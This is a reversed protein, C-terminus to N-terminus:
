LAGEDVIALMADNHNCSRGEEHASEASYAIFLKGDMVRGYPYSLAARRGSKTEGGEDLLFLRRISSEGPAGIGLLLRSRDGPAGPLPTNFILYPRGDSLRGCFPKSTAMPLNTEECVGFSRGCDTSEATVAHFVGERRLSENRMIMRVRNGAVWAGAETFVEGRTNLCVVDWHLLDEGRSRAAAALWNESCGTLLWCGDGTKEPASLPWFGEAVIGRSRWAGEQLTWAETQLGRFHILKHGKETVPPEGLGYFQPGFCWLGDKGPLFVSHSHASDGPPAIHEPATWSEGGDDSWRILLEESASNEQGNNYAFCVALRGQWKEVCVGHLFHLAGTERVTDFVRHYTIHDPRKVALGSLEGHFLTYM